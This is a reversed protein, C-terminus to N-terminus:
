IFRGDPCMGGNKAVFALSVVGIDPFPPRRFRQGTLEQWPSLHADERHTLQQVQQSVEEDCGRRRQRGGDRHPRRDKGARGDGPTRRRLHSPWQRGLQRRRRVDGARPRAAVAPPAAARRRRRGRRRSLRLRAHRQRAVPGGSTAARPERRRGASAVAVARVIRRPGAAPGAAPTRRPRQAASRHLWRRGSSGQSTQPRAHLRGRRGPRNDYVRQGLRLRELHHRHHVNSQFRWRGLSPQHLPDPVTYRVEIFPHGSDQSPSHNHSLNHVPSRHGADQTSAPRLM